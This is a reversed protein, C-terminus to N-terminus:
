NTKGTIKLYPLRMEIFSIVVSKNLFAGPKFLRGGFSDPMEHIGAGDGFRM